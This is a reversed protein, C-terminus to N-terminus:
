LSSSALVLLLLVVGLMLLAGALAPHEPREPM